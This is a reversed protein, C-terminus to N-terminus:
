VFLLNSKRHIFGNNQNHHVAHALGGLGQAVHDEGGGGGGQVLQLGIVGPLDDLSVAGGNAQGGVVIHAVGLNAMVSEARSLYERLACLEYALRNFAAFHELAFSPLSNRFVNFIAACEMEVCIAGMRKRAEVKARTERYFADTTWTTGMVYPYGFENLVSIFEDVYKTNVDIADSAPAYHFSTGEDRLAKTPIIIGCDKINKDLVGCNGLLIIRRVGMPIVDEFSGVCAPAGLRAKYLAFRKGKYYVEYVPWVGDVDHTEQIKEGDLFRVIASFLHHSFISVMTEPFDPVLHHVIDPDIVARKAPDFETLLM